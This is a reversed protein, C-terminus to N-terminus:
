DDTPVPDPSEATPDVWDQVLWVPDGGLTVFGVDALAPLGSGLQETNDMVVVFVIGGADTELPIPVPRLTPGQMADNVVSSPDGAAAWGKIADITGTPASWDTGYEEVFADHFWAIQVDTVKANTSTELITRVVAPDEDFAQAYVSPMRGITGAMVGWFLTSVLLSLVGFVLGIVSMSMGALGGRSRRIAVIALAGVLVPVVAVVSGGVPLCCVPLAIIGTVLAAISLLSVRQEQAVPLPQSDGFDSFQQQEDSEM